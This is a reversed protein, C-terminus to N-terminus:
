NEALKIESDGDSAEHRQFERATAALRCAREESSRLYESIDSSRIAKRPAAVRINILM